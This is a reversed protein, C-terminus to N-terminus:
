QSRPDETGKFAGARSFIGEEREVQKKLFRDAKGPIGFALAAGPLRGARLGRLLPTWTACGGAEEFGSQQGPSQCM